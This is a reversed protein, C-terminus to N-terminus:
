EPQPQASEQAELARGDGGARAPLKVGAAGCLEGFSDEIARVFDHLDPVLDWDAM